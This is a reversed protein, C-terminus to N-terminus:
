HHCGTAELSASFTIWQTIGEADYWRMRMAVLIALLNPTNKHMTSKTTM